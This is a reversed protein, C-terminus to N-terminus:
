MQQTNYIAKEYEQMKEKTDEPMAAKLEQACYKILEDKDNQVAFFNSKPFFDATKKIKKRTERDDLLHKWSLKKGHWYLDLYVIRSGGSSYELGILMKKLELPELFTLLRIHYTGVPDAFMSVERNWTETVIYGLKLGKIAEVIRKYQVEYAEYHDFIRLDVMHWADPAFAKALYRPAHIRLYSMLQAYDQKVFLMEEHFKRKGDAESTLFTVIVGENNERRLIDSTSTSECQLEAKIKEVMPKTDGLSNFVIIQPLARIFSIHQQLEEKMLQCLVYEVSEQIALFRTKGETGAEDLLCIVCHIKATDIGHGLEAMKSCNFLEMLKEEVIDQQGSRIAIMRPGTAVLNLMPTGGKREQM